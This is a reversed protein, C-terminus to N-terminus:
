RIFLTKCKRPDDIEWNVFFSDHLIHVFQGCDRIQPLNPLSIKGATKHNWHWPLDADNVHKLIKEYDIEHLFNEFEM